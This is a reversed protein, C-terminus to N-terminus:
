SAQSEYDFQPNQTATYDALFSEMATNAEDTTDFAYYMVCDTGTDRIFNESSLVVEDAGYCRYSFAYPVAALAAM